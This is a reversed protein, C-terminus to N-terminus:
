REDDDNLTLSDKPPRRRPYVSAGVRPIFGMMVERAQKANEQLEDRKEVDSRFSREMAQAMQKTIEAHSRRDKKAERVRVIGAENVWRAITTRPIGTARGVEASSNEMRAYLGLALCRQEETYRPNGTPNM